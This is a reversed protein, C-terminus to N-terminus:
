YRNHKNKHKRRHKFYSSHSNIFSIIVGMLSSTLVMSSLFIAHSTYEFEFLKYVWLYNFAITAFVCCIAFLVNRVPHETHKENNFNQNYNM